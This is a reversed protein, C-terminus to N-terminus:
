KGRGKKKQGSVKSSKGSKKEEGETKSRIYWEYILMAVILTIIVEWIHLPLLGVLPITFLAKGIVWDKQSPEIEDVGPVLLYGQDSAANNDGKSIYGGHPAITDTMRIYGTDNSVYASPLIYSENATRIVIDKPSTTVNGSPITTGTYIVQYGDVTINSTELPVYATPTMAGRYMNLFSPQPQGADVWIMARHIIPHQKSLPLVGISAWFDTIGDPRYIIVDGYDGFKKYGSIKGDEWTQLAGFRDPAVVVVLDGINMHPEMSGSEITVVAPWTGCVLYLSLAIGGVIAAMWLIDRALSVAWHESTRFRNVLTRIDGGTNSDAM